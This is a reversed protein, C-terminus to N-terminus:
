DGAIFFVMQWTGDIHMWRARYDIPSRFTHDQIFGPTGAITRIAQWGPTPENSDNADDESGLRVISYSLTGLVESRPDPDAYVKVDDAILAVHWFADITEPFRTYVYPAAFSSHDSDDFTGGLTLVHMLEDWFPSLEPNSDLDWPALFGEIGDDKGFSYKVNSDTHNRLFSVDRAKAAAMLEDRFTEFDANLRAEDIPHLKVDDRGGLDIFEATM